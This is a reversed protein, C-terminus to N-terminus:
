EDARQIIKIIVEHRDGDEDTLEFLLDPNDKNIDVIVCDINSSLKEGIKDKLELLTKAFEIELSSPNYLKTKM